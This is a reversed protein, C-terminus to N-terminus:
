CCEAPYSLWIIQLHGISLSMLSADHTLSCFECVDPTKFCSPEWILQRCQWGPLGSPSFSQFCLCLFFNLIRVQPTFEIPDPQAAGKFPFSRRKGPWKAPLPRPRPHLNPPLHQRPWMRAPSQQRSWIQLTAGFFIDSENFDRVPSYNGQKIVCCVSDIGRLVQRVM